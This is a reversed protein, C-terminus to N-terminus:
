AFCCTARIFTGSSSTSSGESGESDGGGGQGGRRGGVLRVLVLAQVLRLIADILWDRLTQWGAVGSMYKVHFGQSAARANTL